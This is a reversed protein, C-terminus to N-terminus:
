TATAAQLRPEELVAKLQKMSVPKAIYRDIGCQQRKIPDDALSTVAVIPARLGERRLRAALEYGDVGPLMIDMLVLDIARGCTAYQAFQASPIGIVQHGCASVFAELTAATSLSDEVILVIM